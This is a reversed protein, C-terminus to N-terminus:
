EGREKELEIVRLKFENLEKNLANIREHHNYHDEEYGLQGAALTEMKDSIDKTAKRFGEAEHRLRLAAPCKDPDCM